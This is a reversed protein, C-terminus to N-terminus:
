QVSLNITTSSQASGSTGKITVTYNQSQTQTSAVGLGGACGTLMMGSALVAGVVLMQLIQALHKRKGGAFLCMGMAMGTATLPIGPRNNQPVGSSQTAAHITMVSTVSKSGPTVTPASWTATLGAPLSSSSLTVARNYSGGVPSVTVTVNVSGASTLTFPTQPAAVTFSANSSVTVSVATSTSAAFGSNGSYVATINNNGVPLSTTTLTAIGSGNPSATALLTTGDYFNITGSPSGSPVPSVTATLVVPQGITAQTASTTLITGTTTLAAKTVTQILPASTSGAFMTNGGYVATISDAGAVLNSTSFTAVGSSNVTGSGLLTTASYFKISGFSNGAPVPTVTATFQVTQGLQVPNVSSSVATTTAIAPGGTLVIASSQSAAHSDDASYSAVVSHAGSGPANVNTATATVSQQGLLISVSGTGTGEFNPTALDILGDGNFDAAAVALPANGVPYAVQSQFTGDGKGLLLSVTNSNINAIAVDLQNDGNFDALVMQLPSTGTAYSVQNQFTGDGNGLLVSLTNSNLNGIVLDLFGDGNLDGTEVSRSALGTAYAQPAGFTGDGNNLLVTVNNDNANATAIDPFGDGNFDGIAIKSPGNGTAYTVAAQFTGDGNGLLVSVNSTGFNAVVLDQIGDWNVDGVEVSEANNGSTYAVQPQFTGDGNGLVVSVTGSVYNAIAVDLNGDANFDGVALGQPLNGAGVTSPSQFSGNGTGLFINLNSTTAVALDPIGDGNFDGAAAFYPAASAHGAGVASTFSFNATSPDLSATGLVYNANSTDVFPVSGAPLVRGFATVTATLTYAGASGSNSISTTSQYSSNGAVNLTQPDSSSGWEGGAGIFQAQINYNGAGPVFKLTATGTSTVQVVALVGAGPCPALTNCFTISGASIPLDNHLPSATLTVMTGATVSSNPSITLTTANNSVGYSPKALLGISILAFLCVIANKTCTMLGDSNRLIPMINRMQFTPPLAASQNANAIDIAGLIGFM